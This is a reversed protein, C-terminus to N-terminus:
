YELGNGMGSFSIESLAETTNPNKSAHSRSQQSLDIKRLLSRGFYISCIVVRQTSMSHSLLLCILLIILKLFWSTVSGKALLSFM